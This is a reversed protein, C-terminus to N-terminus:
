STPPSFKFKLALPIGIAFFIVSVGFAFGLHSDYQNDTVWAVIFNLIGSFVLAQSIAVIAPINRLAFILMMVYCLTTYIGFYEWEFSSYLTLAFGCIVGTIIRFIVAKNKFAPLPNWRNPSLVTGIFGFTPAVFNKVSQIRKESEIRDTELDEKSRKMYWIAYLGVGGLFIFGGTILISLRENMLGINHIDGFSGSYVTTNMQLGYLLLLAGFAMCAISLKKM